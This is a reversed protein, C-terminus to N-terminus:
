DLALVHPAVGLQALAAAIEQRYVPNMIIVLDPQFDALFAPPKIEVGTGVMFRGHLFPNVDVVYRICGAAAVASTFGQCKAGAGWIVVKRYRGGGLLENWRNVVGAVDDRFRNAAGITEAATENRVPRGPATGRDPAPRAELTLYQGGYVLRTGSV